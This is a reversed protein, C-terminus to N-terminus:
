QLYAGLEKLADMGSRNWYQYDHRGESIRFVLRERTKLNELHTALSKSHETSVWEDQQSHGIYVFDPIGDLNYADNLGEEWRGPQKHYPGMANIMLADSTDMSPFYDGSLAIVGGIENQHEMGMFIAGRAGTSLGMLFLMRNDLNKQGFVPTFVSDWLWKRTPYRQYDKRTEPYISDMYISKGMECLLVDFGMSLARNVVNTKSEWDRAPYNWGPLFALVKSNSSDAKQYFFDVKTEAFSVQFATDQNFPLESVANVSPLSTTSDVDVSEMNANCGMLACTFVLLVRAKM